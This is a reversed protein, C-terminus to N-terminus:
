RTTLGRRVPLRMKELFARHRPDAELSELLPDGIIMEPIGPDRQAYARELWAFAENALGRFAHVEAIQYASDDRDKVLLEGLYADAETKKGLAHYALALGYRRFFPEEEQEMEDLAAAPNSRTLHVRGISMHAGPYESQLELAKRFAAEAVDLRGARWAHGGLSDRITASLPDLEVARWGLDIAEDFRGLTAALGAAGRVVMANGPELELARKFAADAGSWDWDYYKRIRGLAAHAEALNPDLELAKEVEQRAMRYGGELPIYSWGAQDDHALALGVWTRPHHPDLKLARQYYSTARELDERSRRDAFYKGQLYLSYAEANGKRAEHKGLLRVKLASSVSRAIDDQVAFIDDLERDYTESWLPFGDEVKVLQATIRVRRGARRVSGELVNGVNLQKGITAIDGTRGKFQFCSTRAAVRLERVRALMSLLEESLGDTFYEQDRGPSMDVFPLVAVSPVATTAAAGSHSGARKAGRGLWLGAAMALALATAGAGIWLRARPKPSVALGGPAAAGGAATDRRLRELDARLDSASQYRLTRDKEMAKAIIRELEVPVQRNLRVPAVPERDFIAELVEGTTEGAFPHVGTAMEYLVVGFSFLDTRSDLNSGRAQEPSMYAVTGVVTGPHTLQSPLDATSQDSDMTTRNVPLKALGFDLLKAQGRDTVFINAPKIDRHIIGKGHAAELADAMQAGLELLRQM